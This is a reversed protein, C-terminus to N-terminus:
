GAVDIGLTTPVVLVNTKGPNLLLEKGDAEFSTPVNYATKKWTAEKMKGNTIYIARGSGVLDIDRRGVDDVISTNAFQIIINKCTLAEGTLEDIHPSGSEYRVYLKNGEDYEFSTYYTNSFPVTFEIVDEGSIDTDGENFSFLKVGPDDMSYGYSEAGSLIEKAGTYSSHEYMGAQNIRAPDRWFTKVDTMGDINNIGRAKISEYGSPSGGHHIFIAGNDLAFYTFYSRASRVPGIKEADFDKFIAVLRTIEGEALVEYLIDAQAIGSQPLAKHHNNIVVAVPRRNAIEEDIYLGTLPNIALGALEPEEKIEGKQSNEKTAVPESVPVSTEETEKEKGCGSLILVLCLLFFVTKKM